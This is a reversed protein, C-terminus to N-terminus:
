ETEGANLLKCYHAILLADSVAYQYSKNEKWAKANPYLRQAIGVLKKKWQTTTMSKLRRGVSLAKMWRQPTAEQLSLHCGIVAMRIGGYGMGFTFGSQASQSPMSHVKEIMAHTKGAQFKVAIAEIRGWMEYETDPMPYTYVRKPTIVAIGGKIGPDIGVYNHYM